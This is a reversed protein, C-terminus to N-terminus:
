TDLVSGIGVAFDYQFLVAVEWRQAPFVSTGAFISLLCNQSQSCISLSEQKFLHLNWSVALRLVFIGVKGRSHGSRQMYLWECFWRSFPRHDDSRDDSSSTKKLSDGFM